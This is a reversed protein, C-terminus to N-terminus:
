DLSIVFGDRPTYTYAVGQKGAEFEVEQTDTRYLKGDYYVKGTITIHGTENNYNVMLIAANFNSFYDNVEAAVSSFPADEYSKTWSTEKTGEATQLTMGKGVMDFAYFSVIPVFKSYDGSFSVEIKTNKSDVVSEDDDDNSGGCSTFVVPLSVLALLALICYSSKKM